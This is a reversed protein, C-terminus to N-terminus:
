AVKARPKAEAKQQEPAPEVSDSRLGLYILM